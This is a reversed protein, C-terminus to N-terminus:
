ARHMVTCSLVTCGDGCERMCSSSARHRHGPSRSRGHEHARTPWVFCVMPKTPQNWMTWDNRRAAERTRGNSHTQDNISIRHQMRSTQGGLSRRYQRDEVVDHTRAQDNVSIAPSSTWLVGRKDVVEDEMESEGLNAHAQAQLLMQSSCIRGRRLGRM